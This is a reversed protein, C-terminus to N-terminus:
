RSLHGATVSTVTEYILKSILGQILKTQMNTTITAGTRQSNNSNVYINKTLCQLFDELEMDHNEKSIFVELLGQIM